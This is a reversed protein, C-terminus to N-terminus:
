YPSMMPPAAPSTTIKMVANNNDDNFYVIQNGQADVTAVIGFLAGPAGTDLQVPQGVFGGPLVPSIEFVLNPTQSGINIDANGVILDGNSLLAASLPTFLAGGTAIVRASAASPGSFTPAPTPPMTGPPCQGNVVVGAAGISSVGAFAVVSNSSTDVIYLTDISADYTLGSPAFVGGPAGSGCFGTAIQTFATQTDGNLTIRDISGDFNSVYLAAPNQGNAPEYAAGWPHAFTDSSFPTNVVGAATVLASQNAGFAAASISDDPLMALANCGQLQSSQAIRYPMAGATPHLGVITTGLGQTNTAGDNFNCAVLDGATILGTTIPAIALGYPNGGMEIPDITSGIQIIGAVSLTSLISPGVTVTSTTASASGGAGSCMLTYTVTGAATPAVTATGSAPQTGTFAGGITSSTTATCTTANTSTWALQVTRGFSVTTAQAPSTFTVTPMPTATPPPMMPASYGGGGGGCAVLVVAALGPVCRYVTFRGVRM